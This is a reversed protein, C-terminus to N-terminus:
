KEVLFENSWYHQDGIYAYLRVYTVDYWNPIDAQLVKVGNPLEIEEGPVFDTFNGYEPATATTFAEQAPLPAFYVGTTVMNPDEAGQILWQVTIFDGGGASFPVQVIDIGADPIGEALEGPSGEIYIFVLVGFFLVLSFIIMYLLVRGKKDM